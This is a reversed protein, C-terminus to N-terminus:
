TKGPVTLKYFEVPNDYLWLKLIYEADRRSLKGSEIRRAFAKALSERAVVLNGYVNELSWCSDAGFGFIKNVPITDLIESIAQETIEQSINYAWCLNLFANPFNKVIFILDRVYPMGLHYLDFRVNPYRTVVDIMNKPDVTRYDWWIGCHVAVPLDVKECIKMLVDLLTSQLVVSAKEGKLVDQFLFPSAQPDPAVFPNAAIKFGVAGKQKAETLEKELLRTYDAYKTVSASHKKELARIYRDSQLQYSEVDAYLPTFLEAPDQDEIKGNQVLCKQIRCKGRLLKVYSGKRNEAQIRRSAELYTDENLDDIGYLDKLAIKFPRYYSGYKIHRLHPAVRQWRESLPVETDLFLNNVFVNEDERPKYGASTTDVYEYLHMLTFVDLKRKRRDSECVLHEHTDIIDLGELYGYLHEYDNMNM